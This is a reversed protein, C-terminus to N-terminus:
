RAFDLLLNTVERPREWQPSHGAGRLKVVRAAPVDKAWADAAEPDVIEDKTGFIVLLRRGSENIRESNPEEEVSERSERRRSTTPM